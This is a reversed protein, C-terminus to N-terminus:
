AAPPLTPLPTARLVPETWRPRPPAPSELQLVKRPCTLTPPLPVPSPPQTLLPFAPARPPPQSRQM